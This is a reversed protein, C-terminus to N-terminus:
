AIEELVLHALEAKEETQGFTEHVTLREGAGTEAHAHEALDRAFLEGNEARRVGDDALLDALAAAAGVLIERHEGAHLADADHAVSARIVVGDRHAAHFRAVKHGAHERGQRPTHQPADGRANRVFHAADVANDVVDGGLRGRGDFKFLDLQKFFGTNIRTEAIEILRKIVFQYCDYCTGNNKNDLPKHTVSCNVPPKCVLTRLKARFM